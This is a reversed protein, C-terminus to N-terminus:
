DRPASILNKESNEQMLVVVLVHIIMLRLYLHYLIERDNRYFRPFPFFVESPIGKKKGLFNGKPLVTRNSNLELQVSVVTKEM